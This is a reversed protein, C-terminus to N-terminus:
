GEDNGEERPTWHTFVNCQQYVDVKECGLCHSTNLSLAWRCGNCTTHKDGTECTREGKPEGLYARVAADLARADPSKLNPENKEWLRVMVVAAEYVPRIRTLEAELEAKDAALREYEWKWNTM